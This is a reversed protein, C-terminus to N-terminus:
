YVISGLFYPLALFVSSRVQLTRLKTSFSEKALSSDYGITKLYMIAQSASFVDSFMIFGYGKCLGKEMVTSGSVLRKCTQELIAKTSVINGIHKVLNYLSADTTSPPLGRVYVNKGERIADDVVEKDIMSSGAVPGSRTLCSERPVATSRFENLSFKGYDSGSSVMGGYTRSMVSNDSGNTSFGNPQMTNLSYSTTAASRDQDSVSGYGVIGKPLYYQAEGTPPFCAMRNQSNCPGSPIFSQTAEQSPMSPQHNGSFASCNNTPAENLDASSNLPLRPLHFGTSFPAYNSEMKLNQLSWNSKKIV